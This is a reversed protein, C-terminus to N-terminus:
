FFPWRGRFIPLRVLALAPGASSRAMTGLVVLASSCLFARCPGRLAALTVDFPVEALHTTFALVASCVTVSVAAGSEAFALGALCIM